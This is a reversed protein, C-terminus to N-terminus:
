TGVSAAAVTTMPQVRALPLDPDVARLQERVAAALASPDASSRIALSFRAVPSQTTSMYMEPNVPRDLGWHRVDSVVGVVERWGSAGAFGVRRGVPSASGWYRRAMTENIVLVPPSNATDTSSFERGSVLRMGMARFYAPSVIRWHARTPADPVPERGEIAVGRRSDMGSLPLHTTAGVAAVGPLAAVRAEIDGFAVRVREADAYRAPPLSISATLVGDARFGPDSQLLARFSRLTLGASVLLLSALAIESVVLVVRLRRRIGGPNRTGDRLADNVDTRSAHWAPLLGVLMGSVLTVGFTFVLIRGDLAVQQLAVIPADITVQRLLGISWYAVFLGAIGGAGGLVLTETLAQAVLRARGAGLATRVAMERRRAAARALLLNAVNVCAILLVFAVAGLLLLLTTRVPAAFNEQMPVVWAGHTRNTDPYDQSLQAAVRDMEARARELTVGDKLRAYVILEHNARAPPQPGGELVLPVWLAIQPDLYRFTSPLVGIVEHVNGNLVITRGVISPDAGFREQWLGHSILTVRNRGIRDEGPAFTRGLAPRVRLVDFFPTSVGGAGLRVPEGSGTLDVGTAFIAAMSEFAGNMRAWDLYDAPAVVNDFVGEAARKEWVMVLRDPEGYPLPRLLAADVASFIASNAGIGLALTLVTVLTVAPQRVLLRLSFRIDNLLNPMWRRWQRAGRAASELSAIAGSVREATGQAIADAAAQGWLRRVSQGSAKASRLQEEFMRAMEDGFQRRIRRPFALLLLRYLTM